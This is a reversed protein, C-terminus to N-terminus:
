SSESDRRTSRMKRKLKTEGIAAVLLSLFRASDASWDSALAYADPDSIQVLHRGGDSSMRCTRLLAIRWSDVWTAQGLPEDETAQGPLEDQAAQNLPEDEAVQVLAPPEDEVEIVQVLALPGDEAAQVLVLPKDAVAQGM